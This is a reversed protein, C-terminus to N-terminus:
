IHLLTSEVLFPQFTCVSLISQMKKWQMLLVSAPVSSLLKHYCKCKARQKIINKVM